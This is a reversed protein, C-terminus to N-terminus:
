KINGDQNYMPQCKEVDKDVNEWEDKKIIAM